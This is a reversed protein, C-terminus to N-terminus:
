NEEALRRGLRYFRSYTRAWGHHPALVWLNSTYIAPGVLQPHDICVGNLSLGRGSRMQYQDLLPSDALTQESPMGGDALSKLDSLLRELKRIDHALAARSAPNSTLIHM